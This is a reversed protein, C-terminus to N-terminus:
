STANPAPLRKSRNSSQKKNGANWSLLVDNGRDFKRNERDFFRFVNNEFVVILDCLEKGGAKYPNPYSWLNLFTGDCLHSLFKETPTQGPSKDITMAIVLCLRDPNSLGCSCGNVRFDSKLPVSYIRNTEPKVVKGLLELPDSYSAPCSDM